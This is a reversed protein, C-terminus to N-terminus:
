VARVTAPYSAAETATGSSILTCGPEAYSGLCSLLSEGLRARFWVGWRSVGLGRTPDQPKPSWTREGEKGGWKSQGPVDKGKNKKWVM